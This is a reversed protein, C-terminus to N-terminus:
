AMDGHVGVLTLLFFAASIAARGLNMKSWKQASDRLEEGNTSETVINHSLPQMLITTYVATIPISLAAYVLYPHRVAKPSLVYATSFCLLTTSSVSGLLRQSRGLMHEFARSAGTSTENALVTPMTLLSHGTYLGALLGLGCTGIIKCANITSTTATM